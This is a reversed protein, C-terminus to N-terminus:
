VTIPKISALLYYFNSHAGAFILIALILVKSGHKFHNNKENFSLEWVNEM